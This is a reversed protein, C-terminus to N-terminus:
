GDVFVYFFYRGKMHPYKEALGEYRDREEFSLIYDSAQLSHALMLLFSAGLIASSISLCGYRDMENVEASFWCFIKASGSM